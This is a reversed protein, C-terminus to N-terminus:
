DLWQLGQKNRELMSMVEIRAQSKIWEDVWRLWQEYIWFKSGSSDTILACGNYYLRVRPKHTKHKLSRKIRANDAIQM